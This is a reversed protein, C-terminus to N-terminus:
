PSSHSLHATHFHNRNWEFSQKFLDYVIFDCFISRGPPDFFFPVLMNIPQSSHKLTLVIATFTWKPAFLLVSLAVTLEPGM